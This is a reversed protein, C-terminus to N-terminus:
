RVKPGPGSRSPSKQSRNRWAVAGLKGVGGGTSSNRRGMREKRKERREDDADDKAKQAGDNILPPASPITQVSPIDRAEDIEEDKQLLPKKGSDAGYNANIVCIM